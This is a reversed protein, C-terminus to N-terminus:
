INQFTQKIPCFKNWKGVNKSLFYSKNILHSETFIYDFM